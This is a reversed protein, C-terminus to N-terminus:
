NILALSYMFETVTIRHLFLFLFLFSFLSSFFHVRLSPAGARSAGSAFSIVDRERTQNSEGKTERRPSNRTRDRVNRWFVLERDLRLCHAFKSQERWSGCFFRLIRALISRTLAGAASRNSIIARATDIIRMATFTVLHSYLSLLLPISDLRRAFQFRRCFRFYNRKKRLENVDRTILFLGRDDEIISWRNSPHRDTTLFLALLV